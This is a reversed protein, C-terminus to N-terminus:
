ELDCLCSNAICAGAFGAVILPAGLVLVASPGHIMVLAVLSGAAAVGIATGALAGVLNIFTEM